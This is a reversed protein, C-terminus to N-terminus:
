QSYKFKTLMKYNMQINTLHSIVKSLQHSKYEVPPLTIAEALFAQHMM